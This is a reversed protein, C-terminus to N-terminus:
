ELIIEQMGMLRREVAEGDMFGHLYARGLLSFRNRTATSRLILPVGAGPVIWVTDGVQLSQSGIGLYGDNTLFLSRDRTCTLANYYSLSAFYFGKIWEEDEGNGTNSEALGVMTDANLISPIHPALPPETVGLEAITYLTELTDDNVSESEWSEKLCDAGECVLWFQFPAAPGLPNGQISADEILTRAFVDLRTQGTFYTQDLRRLIRAWRRFTKNFPRVELREKDAVEGVKTGVTGLIRPDTFWRIQTTWSDPARSGIGTPRHYIVPQSFNPAWSPLNGVGRVRESDRSMDDIVSLLTLDNCQEILFKSAEIYTQEVPRRYDPRFATTNSSSTLTTAIGLLAYVKDRPDTADFKSGTCFLELLNLHEWLHSSESPEDNRDPSHPRTRISRELQDRLGSLLHAHGIAPSIENFFDPENQQFQLLKIRGAECVGFYRSANVLDDWSVRIAGYFVTIEKAVLIEQIIWVRNFWTRQLFIILARWHGPSTGITGLVRQLEGAEAFEQRDMLEPRVAGIRPLLELVRSTEDGEEGLWVIFSRASRYIDTMLSVQSSREDLDAQNISIADIWINDDSTFYRTQSIRTLFDYLNRTVLFTRGNCLITCYRYATVGNRTAEMSPSGWTYSLAYYSPASDLDVVTLTCSPTTRGVDLQPLRLLRISRESPLASHRYAM